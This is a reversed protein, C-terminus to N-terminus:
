QFLNCACGPFSHMLLQATTRSSHIQSSTPTTSPGGSMSKLGLALAGPSTQPSFPQAPLLEADLGLRLLPWKGQVGQCIVKGTALLSPKQPFNKCERSNQISLTYLQGQTEWLDEPREESRVGVCRVLAKM